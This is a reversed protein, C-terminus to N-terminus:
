NLKDCLTKRDIQLIEAAKTENGQTHLLVKKVYEREM